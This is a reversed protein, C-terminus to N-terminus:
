AANSCADTRELCALYFACIESAMNSTNKHMKLHNARKEAAKEVADPNDLYTGVKASLADIHDAQVMCDPSLIEGIGGVDSAILPKHAAIAELVIYPFSEARSPIVMLRGLGFADKAPIAGTFTIQNSLGLDDSLKEFTERDPGDGVITATVGPHRAIANILVDVGKLQRLEGIFLIDTPDKVLKVPEFEDPWLGNHVVTHAVSGIGIKEDFTRREYDCVFVLGDTHPLLMREVGLFIAGSASVWSYHLSGGHATYIAKAGMRSAAFRAYAGGKAGHGHVIDFDRGKGIEAVRRASIADGLGPLRSMEIRIVGLTCFAELEKLRATAADGGTNADCIVAVEHGLQSQAKALDYVHRFLGGVPSRFVQLIRM